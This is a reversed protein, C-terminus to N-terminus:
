VAEETGPESFVMALDIELEPLFAVPVRDGATYVSPRGYLGDPGRRYVSVAKEVPHVIWYEEVGVREYLVFKDKLDKAATAPSLIEVVLDPASKCGHEDLKAPDCIVVLDPQVVNSATLDSEGSVPLRVDFPADYVQCRKGLLHNAFQRLLERSVEQHLRSPAPTMNYAVGHILEWREDDPWRLYDAYTYRADRKTATQAM